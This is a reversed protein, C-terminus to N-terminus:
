LHTRRIGSSTKALLKEREPLQRSRQHILSRAPFTSEVRVEWKPRWVPLQDAPQRSGSEGIASRQVSQEAGTAATSSAFCETENSGVFNRVDLVLAVDEFGAFHTRPAVVPVVQEIGQDPTPERPQLRRQIGKVATLQIRLTLTASAGQAVGQRKQIFASDYHEPPVPCDQLCERLPVPL